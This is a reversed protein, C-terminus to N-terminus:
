LNLTDKPNIIRLLTPGTAVLAAILWAIFNQFDFRGVKAFDAIAQSVVIATFTRIWSAIPSTAFWRYFDNM